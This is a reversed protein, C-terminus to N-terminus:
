TYRVGEEGCFLQCGETGCEGCGSDKTTSGIDVRDGDEACALLGLPMDPECQHKAAFFNVVDIDDISGEGACFCDHM